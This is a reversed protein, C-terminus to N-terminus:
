ETVETNQQEAKTKAAVFAHKVNTVVDELASLIEKGEEDEYGEFVLEAIMNKNFCIYNSEDTLGYPFPVGFYDFVGSDERQPLYGAVMVHLIDNGNLKVITGIPYYKSM